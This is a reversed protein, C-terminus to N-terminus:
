RVGQSRLDRILDRDAAQIHTLLWDRVASLTRSLESSDVQNRIALLDDKLKRHQEKHSRAGPLGYMDMLSEETDFHYATFRGLDDLLAQIQAGDEAAAVSAALRNVMEALRRHQQDLVAVGPEQETSWPILVSERLSDRHVGEQFFTYGCGETRKQAYMATDARSMLLDMTTSPDAYLAIGISAGVQCTTDGLDIPKGVAQALRQALAALAPRDVAEQLVLAFEDGGMRAVTDSQRVCEILRQGVVQLVQDGAEHGHADNVAKFGDLDLMMLAFGCGYRRARKIAQNLRDYFLARNALGTLPDHFALYKLQREARVRDTVDTVTGLVLKDQSLCAFQAVVEVDIVAGDGRVATFVFCTDQGPKDQLLSLHQALAAADKTAALDLLSRQDVLDGAPYGFLQAFRPNIYVLREGRLAFIGVLSREVLSEYGLGCRQLEARLQEQKTLDDFTLLVFSKVHRLHARVHRATGDTRRLCLEIPEPELSDGHRLATWDGWTVEGGRPDVACTILRGLDALTPTEEASCGTLRRFAENALVFSGNEISAACAPFPIIRLAELADFPSDRSIESDDQM